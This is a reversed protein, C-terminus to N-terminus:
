RSAARYRRYRSNEARSTYNRSATSATAATAWIKCARSVNGLQQSLELLGLKNKIVKESTTM